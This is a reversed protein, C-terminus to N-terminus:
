GFPKAWRDVNQKNFPPLWKQILVLELQQRPRTQAPADWWFAICLATQMGYQYNLSQYNEIYRKCDHVGKWRQTATRKTEGVYLLLPLTNDIVFYLCSQSQWDPMRWFHITELKLNFPDIKDPDCHVPAIDFLATQQPPQSERVRQQHAAIQSKWRGLATADMSLTQPKTSSPQVPNEAFLDLQTM